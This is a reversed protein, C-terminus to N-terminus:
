QAKHRETVSWEKGVGHCVACSETGSGIPSTQADMHAKAADSDHCSSCAVLWSRTDKPQSPHNRSPPNTWVTNGDGHCKACQKTGGPMVPFGVKDYTHASYNNPYGSGFGVVTYTSANTLDSGMHIKHLMQRFDITTDNTAPANAAVYQPRDEAGATGHCALCTDFGRRHSGHFWIDNHCANCNDASSIAARPTITTASGVLFDKQGAPSVSNYSTTEGVASVTFTREGWLSVTYTGDVLSMGAWKGYTSDYSPSGNLATPYTAPVVFDTTYSVLVGKGDPFNAVETIAGTTANLTYDTTLTKEVLTVPEIATGNAHAARLAPQDYSSHTSSFWLRNTQVFQVRLYEEGALGDAIVVYDGRTFKTGDVVDVYNQMANAAASLTSGTAKSDVHWVTTTAATVNWHPAMSTTFTDPSSTADGVFEVFQKSPLHTSISAGSIAATPFSAELLVNSNSTPGSVVAEMRALESVNVDLGQWDKLTFDVKIKEGPDLKGNSNNTGSETVQTVNFVLGANTTSNLLPHMHADRVALGSGTETHCQVCVTNDPQAPMILLNSKYPKAPDWDDHCSSCASRIPNTYALNGQAPAPLPGDGDPDGHCKDCSTVGSRMQDELGRETSTLASYGEDRPMPNTLNPWIPFGIDSFDTSRGILYPAPTSDYKRTGDANTTVGLVSPLHQANHIKHIMVRFDISVGPTGGQRTPDNQDEAGSTHCMLCHEVNRRITGHARLSEHCQNCNATTVVERKTLTTTNGILFDKEVNFAD